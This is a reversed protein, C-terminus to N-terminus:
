DDQQPPISLYVFNGQFDSHTTVNWGRQELLLKLQHTFIWSPVGYGKHDHFEPFVVTKLWYDVKEQLGADISYKYELYDKVTIM